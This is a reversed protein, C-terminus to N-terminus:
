SVLCRKCGRCVMCAIARRRWLGTVSGCKSFPHLCAFTLLKGSPGVTCNVPINIARGSNMKSRVRLGFYEERANTQEFWTLFVMFRSVV